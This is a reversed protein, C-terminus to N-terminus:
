AQRSYRRDPLKGAHLLDHCELCIVLTKRNRATMVAEWKRLTPRNRLEKVKRVHHSELPLDSRGCYECMEYNLRKVLESRQSTLRLTNPVENVNWAKPKRDMHKLRFVKIGCREGRVDYQHVYENGNKLKKLIRSKKTKHKMALTKFLSYNSMYELKVLKVKANGALCYYNALGRLEANYM